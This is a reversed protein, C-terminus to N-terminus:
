ELHKFAFLYSGCLATPRCLPPLHNRPRVGRNNYIQIYLNRGVTKLIFEPIAVEHYVSIITLTDHDCMSYKKYLGDYVCM